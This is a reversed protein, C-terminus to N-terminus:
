VPLTQKGAVSQWRVPATQQRTSRKAARRWTESGSSSSQIKRDEKQKQVFDSLFIMFTLVSCHENNVNVCSAQCWTLYNIQVPSDIIFKLWQSFVIYNFVSYFCLIFCYRQSSFMSSYIIWYFIYCCHPGKSVMHQFTQYWLPIEPVNSIVFIMRVQQGNSGTGFPSSWCLLVFFGSGAFRVEM